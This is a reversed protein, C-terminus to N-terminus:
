RQHGRRRSGLVARGHLAAVSSPAAMWRRWLRVPRVGPQWAFVQRFAIWLQTIPIGFLGVQGPDYAIGAHSTDLPLHRRHRQAMLLARKAHANGPLEAGARWGLASPRSASSGAAPLLLRDPGLTQGLQAPDPLM